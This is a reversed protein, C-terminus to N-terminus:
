GAAKPAKAVRPTIEIEARFFPFQFRHPTQQQQALLAVTTPRKRWCVRLEYKGPPANLSRTTGTQRPERCQWVWEGARNAREQGRVDGVYTEAVIKGHDTGDDAVLQLCVDDYSEGAVPPRTYGVELSFVEGAALRVPLQSPDVGNITCHCERLSDVHLAVPHRPPRPPSSWNSRWVVVGAGVVATLILWRRRLHSQNMM